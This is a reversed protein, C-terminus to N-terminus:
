KKKTKEPYLAEQLGELVSSMDGLHVPLVVNTDRSALGGIRGLYDQSLNLRVAEVGGPKQIAAAVKRIGAATAKAISRIEAAKGEAENVLRSKVGESYNVAEQKEGESRNIQSRMQGESEFIVARKEREASVQKEMAHLVTDTPKIDSIEYRLIDVGWSSAAEDVVSVIKANISEREEFTKDLSLHGFVSRMTTQALQILGYRYNSVNYAARYPDMVKMYVVGDVTLQVNDKTICVQAPVDRAEEKLSLKYQVIDIFPVLLHFGAYLAKQFKGLREVIYVEQNPVIRVSLALKVIVYIALIIVITLSVYNYWM